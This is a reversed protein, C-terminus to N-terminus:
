ADSIMEAVLAATMPVQGCTRSIPEIRVAPWVRSTAISAADRQGIKGRQEQSRVGILNLLHPIGSHFPAAIEVNRPLAHLLAEM